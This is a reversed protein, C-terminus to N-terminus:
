RKNADSGLYSKQWFAQELGGFHFLPSACCLLVGDLVPTPSLQYDAIGQVVREPM